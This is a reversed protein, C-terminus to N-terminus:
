FRPNLLRQAMSIVDQVKIAEMCTHEANPDTTQCGMCDQNQRVFGSWDSWPASGVPDTRGFLAVIPTGLYSALHMVGSDNVIAMSARSLLYGVQTLSAKGSLDIAAIRMRATVRSVLSTDSEDGVFIIKMGNEQALCDATQAFGEETWRKRCDAAGPAMVVFKDDDSLRGALSEKLMQVDKDSAFFAFRQRSLDAPYVSYLVRLHQDRAHENKSRRRILASRYRPMLFVPFLSHRLDVILDFREKRLEMMWRIKNKFPMHKDYIYLHDIRPNDILLPKGKPGIMVSLDAQDFDRRLIDIVPFTLIIDGLNSLSIVLIKKVREKDITM